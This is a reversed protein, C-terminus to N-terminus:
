SLYRGGRKQVLVNQALENAIYFASCLIPRAPLCFGCYIPTDGTVKQRLFTLCTVSVVHRDFGLYGWAFTSRQQTQQQLLKNNIIVRSWIDLRLRFFTHFRREYVHYFGQDKRHPSVM